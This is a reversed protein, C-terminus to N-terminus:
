LGNGQKGAFADLSTGKFKGHRMLVGIVKLDISPKWAINIEPLGNALSRSKLFSAEFGLNFDVPIFAFPYPDLV